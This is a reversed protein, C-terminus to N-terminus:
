KEEFNLSYVARSLKLTAFDTVVCGL